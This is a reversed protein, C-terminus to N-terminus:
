EKMSRVYRWLKYCLYGLVGGVTNLLLDDVDFSGVRMFFQTLEILLSLYLSLFGAIWIRDASKRMWPVFFGFPMFCIVNGALNWFVVQFGLADRHRLFRGIERFLELNYSYGRNGETRGLREAFFMIYMLFFLYALFVLTRILSNWHEKNM